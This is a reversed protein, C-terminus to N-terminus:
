NSNKIITINLGIQYNRGPMPRREIIFYETDWVNNINFFFEANTNKILRKYKLQLNGISFSSVTENFGQVEDTFIQQYSLDISKWNLSANTNLKHVPVYPLQQGKAIRPSELAVENTSLIYAYNLGVKVQIEKLSFSLNLKPELGRSWVKSLNNVSYYNEAPLKGWLIWNKINRNFVNFSFHSRFNQSEQTNSFSLEQSWGYEPLLNLNGGPLWFRDNLGPLRYNRSVKFKVNSNASSKYNIGLSPAIPIFERDVMAQRINLDFSLKKNQFKWSGFIATRNELPNNKYATTNANASSFSTALLLQHHDKIKWLNTVEAYFSKFNSLSQLEIQDDFYNLDENIFGLKVNRTQKNSLQKWELLVKSSQDEQHAESVNQVITAPFQRESKQHWFHFAIQNEPNVKWYFDQLLNRQFQEANLQRQSPLGDAITFPFNNKSTTIFLKSRSQFARNGLGLILQKDFLGFSGFVTKNSLLFGTDFNIENKLSVVGGIAGSGWLATNGGAQVQIKEVSQIPILSIDSLALMVNQIPMGNWLIATQAANAGRFSSTAVGGQGYSKIYIGASQDLLNSLSQLSSNELKATEWSLVESGIQNAFIRTSKVEITELLLTTDLTSQGKLEKPVTCFFIFLIIFHRVQM